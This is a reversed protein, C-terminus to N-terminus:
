LGHHHTALYLVCGGYFASFLVAVSLFFVMNGNFRALGNTKRRKGVLVLKVIMFIGLALPLLVVIDGMSM